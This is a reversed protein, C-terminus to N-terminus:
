LREAIVPGAAVPQDALTFAQRILAGAREAGAQDSAHCLCLPHHPDVQEGIGAIETLGVAHDIRDDSRTRGGGLTIVALGVARADVAAVYGPREPLIARTAPAGALQDPREVLDRPGGLAACMRAFREAAAGSGLARDLRSAADM